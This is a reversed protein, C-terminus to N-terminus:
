MYRIPESDFIIKRCPNLDSSDFLYREVLELTYATFGSPVRLHDTAM